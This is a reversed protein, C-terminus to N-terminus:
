SSLWESRKSIRHPCTRDSQRLYCLRQFRFRAVVSWVHDSGYCIAEVTKADLAGCDLNAMAAAKKVYGLAKIFLPEKSIPIGTINFNEVARFTQIGYYLHDPIELEGLFDHEKRTTKM